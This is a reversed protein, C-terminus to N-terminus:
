AHVGPHMRTKEDWREIWTWCANIHVYYFQLGTTDVYADSGQNVKRKPVLDYVSFGVSASLFWRYAGRWTATRYSPWHPSPFTDLSHLLVQVGVMVVMYLANTGQFTISICGHRGLCTHCCADDKELRTSLWSCIYSILYIWLVFMSYTYLGQSRSNAM